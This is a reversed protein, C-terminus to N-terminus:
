ASRGQEHTDNVREVAVALRERFEARRLGKALRLWFIRNAANQSRLVGRRQRRNVNLRSIM